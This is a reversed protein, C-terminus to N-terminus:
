SSPTYVRTQPRSPPLAITGPFSLSRKAVPNAAIRGCSVVKFGKRCVTRGRWTHDFDRQLAGSAKREQVQVILKRIKASAVQLSEGAFESRHAAYYASIQTASVHKAKRQAKAQIGNALLNLRTRWMLDRITQGSKAMFTDLEAATALSPTATKRQAAFEAKVQARTVTIGRANAEGEVWVAQVLYSMVDNLLVRYHAVCLARLQAPTKDADASTMQLAAICDSYTPPLPLAPALTGTSAQNADNAIVLWHEFAASSIAASGVVAVPADPAVSAASSACLALAALVAVAIPRGVRV